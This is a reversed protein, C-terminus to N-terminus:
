ESGRKRLCEPKHAPWGARQCQANCYHAVRCASCRLPPGAKDCHKCSWSRADRLLAKAESHRDLSYLTTALNGLISTASPHAGGRLRLIGGLAERLLPEAESRRGAICLQRGLDGIAEVADLRASVLPRRFVELAEACVLAAGRDSGSNLLCRALNIVAM